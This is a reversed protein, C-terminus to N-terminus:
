RRTAAARQLWEFAAGTEHKAAYATGLSYFIRPSDPQLRLARLYASIAPDYEHLRLRATGLAQWAAANGPERVTIATLATAAGAADGGQLQALAADLDPKPFPAARLGSGTSVLGLLLLIAIRRLGPM